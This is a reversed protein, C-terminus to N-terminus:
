QILSKLEDRLRKGEKQHYRVVAEICEKEVKKALSSYAGETEDIVERSSSISYYIKGNQKSIELGIDFAIIRRGTVAIREYQFDIGYVM